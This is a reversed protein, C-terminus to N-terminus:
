DGGQDQLGFVKLHAPTVSFSAQASSFLLLQRDTLIRWLFLVLLFFTHTNTYFLCTHECIYM